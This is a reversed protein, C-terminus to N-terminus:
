PSREFIGKGIPSLIVSKLNEFLMPHELITTEPFVKSSAARDIYASFIFKVIPSRIQSDIQGFSRYDRL